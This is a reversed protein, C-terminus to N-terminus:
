TLTALGIKTAASWRVPRAGARHRGHARSFTCPFIWVIAISLAIVIQAAAAYDQM